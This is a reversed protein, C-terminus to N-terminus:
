KIIEAVFAGRFDGRKYDIAKDHPYKAKITEYAKENRVKSTGHCQLCTANNLFIPKYVKYKHESLQKVILAAIAKKNKYDNEISELVAKEDASPANKPNRYKLSVRKVSVNKASSNNVKEEISVAEQTCFKSAELPGGSKMHQKMNMQLTKGMQM